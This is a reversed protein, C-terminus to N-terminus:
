LGLKAACGQQHKGQARVEISSPTIVGQKQHKISGRLQM